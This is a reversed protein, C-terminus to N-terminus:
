SLNEARLTVNCETGSPSTSTWGTPYCICTTTGASTGEALMKVSPIFLVNPVCYNQVSYFWIDYNNNSNAIVKIQINSTSFSTVGPHLTALWGARGGNAGTWGQQGILDIYAEQAGSGNNGAGIFIKLFTFEGQRHDSFRISCLKRWRSGTGENGDLAIIQNAPNVNELQNGTLSRKVVIAM